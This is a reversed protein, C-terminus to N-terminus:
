AIQTELHETELEIRRADLADFENESFVEIGNAHLVETTLGEGATTRGSFTGDYINRSGCSPSNEKLLALRCNQLQALKLATQAGSEYAALVDEGSKDVITKERREAPHRPVSLGGALEPCIPVLRGESRWTELRPDQIRKSAGDYRVPEGLLCASVLIKEM